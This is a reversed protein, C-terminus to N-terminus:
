ELYFPVDVPIHPCIWWFEFHLTFASDSDIGHVFRYLIFAWNDNHLWGAGIHINEYRSRYHRYRHYGNGYRRYRDDGGDWPGGYRNGTDSERGSADNPRRVYVSVSVPVNLSRVFVFAMVIGLVFSFWFVFVLSLVFRLTFM